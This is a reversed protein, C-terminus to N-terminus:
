PLELKARHRPVGEFSCYGKHPPMEVKCVHCKPKPGTPDIHKPDCAWADGSVHLYKGRTYISAFRGLTTKETEYIPQRCFVCQM